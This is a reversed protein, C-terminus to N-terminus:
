CCREQVASEAADARQRWWARADLPPQGPHQVRHRQVYRDYASDGLLDGVFGSLTRWGRALATM